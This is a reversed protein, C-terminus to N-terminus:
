KKNAAPADAPVRVTKPQLEAPIQNAPYITVTGAADFLKIPTTPWQGPLYRLGGNVLRYMGNGVKGTEDPGVAKPDWYLVGANDLGGYDTGQWYGHNGWTVITQLTPGTAKPAAHYLGDRFTDATLNPGALQLGAYRALPSRPAPPTQPTAM